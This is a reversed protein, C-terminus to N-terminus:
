TEDVFERAKSIGISKSCCTQNVKRYRFAPFGKFFDFPLFTATFDMALRLPNLGLNISM